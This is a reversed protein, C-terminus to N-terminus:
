IPQKAQWPIEEEGAVFVMGDNIVGVVGLLPEQIEIAQDKAKGM